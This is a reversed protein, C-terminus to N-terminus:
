SITARRPLGSEPLAAAEEAPAEPLATHCTQAVRAPAEMERQGTMALRYGRQTVRVPSTSKKQLSGVMSSVM